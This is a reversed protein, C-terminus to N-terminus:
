QKQPITEEILNAALQDIAFCAKAALKSRVSHKPAQRRMIDIQKLVETLYKLQEFFDSPAAQLYPEAARNIEDRLQRIVNDIAIRNDDAYVRMKFYLEETV